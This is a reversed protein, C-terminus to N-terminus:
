PLPPTPWPPPKAACGGFQFFERRSVVLESEDLRSCHAAAPDGRCIAIEWVYEGADTLSYTYVYEKTWAQSLPVDPAKGIRIDFWEDVALTRPWIWKLTVNCAIIDIGLLQIPPYQPPKPTRTVALPPKPAQVTFSVASSTSSISAGTSDQLVVPYEGIALTMPIAAMITRSNVFTAQLPVGVVVTFLPTFGEGSIAVTVGTGQLTSAPFISHVEPKSPAIQFSYWDSGESVQEYQDQDISRVVAVAWEYKGPSLDPLAFYDENHYFLSSRQGKPQVRLWYYEEPQLDDPYSWRLTIESELDFEADDEPQILTVAPFLTPVLTPALTPYPTDTPAPTATRMHPPPETPKPVCCALSLLMIFAALYTIVLCTAPMSTPTIGLRGAVFRRLRSGNGNLLDM